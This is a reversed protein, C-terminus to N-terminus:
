YCRKECRSEDGIASFTKVGGEYDKKRTCVKFIPHLMVLHAVTGKRRVIYSTELQM